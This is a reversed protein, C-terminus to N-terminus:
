GIGLNAAAGWVPHKALLKAVTNKARATAESTDPATPLECFPIDVENSPGLPVGPTHYRVRVATALENVVVIGLVVVTVEVTPWNAGPPLVCCPGDAFKAEGYAIGAASSAHPLGFLTQLVYDAVSTSAAVTEFQNAPKPQSGDPVEKLFAVCDETTVM